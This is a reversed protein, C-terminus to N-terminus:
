KGALWRVRKGLAQTRQSTRNDVMACPSVFASLQRMFIRVMQAICDIVRMIKAQKIPVKAKLTCACVGITM